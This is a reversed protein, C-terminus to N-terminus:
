GIKQYDSGVVGGAEYSRSPDFAPPKAPRAGLTGLSLRLGTKGEFAARLGDGYVNGIGGKDTVRTGRVSFFDLDYLDLENLTVRVCNSGDSSKARWKFTLTSADGVFSHAGIMVPIMQFQALITQATNM